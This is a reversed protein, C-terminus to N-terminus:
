GNKTEAELLAKQLVMVDPTTKGLIAKEAATFLPVALIHGIKRPEHWHCNGSCDTYFGLQKLIDLLPLVKSNTECFKDRMLGESIGKLDAYHEVFEYTKSKHDRYQQWGSKIEDSNRSNGIKKLIEIKGHEELALISLSMATPTDGARLLMRASELLRVANEQALRVGEEVQVTTLCGSYRPMTATIIKKAEKDTMELGMM